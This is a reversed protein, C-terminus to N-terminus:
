GCFQRNSFSNSVRTKSMKLARFVDFDDFGAILHCCKSAMVEDNLM